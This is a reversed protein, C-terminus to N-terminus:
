PRRSPYPRPSPILADVFETTVSEVGCKLYPALKAFDETLLHLSRYTRKALQGATTEPLNVGALTAKKELVARRLSEGPRGLTLVEGYNPLHRLLSPHWNAPDGVPHRTTVVVLRSKSVAEIVRLAAEPPRGEGALLHAEDLLFVDCASLWAMFRRYYGRRLSRGLEGQFHSASTHFIRAGQHHAAVHNGIAQLLHTKGTGPGGTFVVPLSKLDPALAAEIATVHLLRNEDGVAFSEFTLQANLPLSRAIPKRDYFEPQRQANRHIVHVQTSHFPRQTLPRPHHSRPGKGPSRVLLVLQVSAKWNKIGHESGPFSETLVGM